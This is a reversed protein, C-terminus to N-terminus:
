KHRKGNKGELRALRERIETLQEITKFREELRDYENKLEAATATMEKMKEEIGRIKRKSKLYENTIIIVLLAIFVIGITIVLGQPSTIIPSLSPTIIALAISMLLGILAWADFEKMREVRKKRSM